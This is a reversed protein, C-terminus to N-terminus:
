KHMFVKADKINPRGLKIANEIKKATRIDKKAMEEEPLLEYYVDRRDVFTIPQAFDQAEEDWALGYLGKENDFWTINMIYFTGDSYSGLFGNKIFGLFDYEKKNDADYYLVQAGKFSGDAETLTNTEDTIYSYWENANTLAGTPCVGASDAALDKFVLENTWYYGAYDGEIIVEIPADFISMFGAGTWGTGSVYDINEDYLFYTCEFLQVKYQTGNSATVMYPEGIATTADTEDYAVKFDNWVLMDYIDKVTVKCVASLDGLKATITAEGSAIAEVNGNQDVTAVEANSTSWECVPLDLTTPEYLVNLKKTEGISLEIAADKFKISTYKNGEEKKCGVLAVLAAALVVLYKKM